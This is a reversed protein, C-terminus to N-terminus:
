TLAAYRSIAISAGVSSIIFPMLRTKSGFPMKFGPLINIQSNLVSCQVVGFTKKHKLTEKLEIIRSKTLYLEEELIVLGFGTGGEWYSAVIDARKNKYEEWIRQVGKIDESDFDSINIIEEILKNMQENLKTLKEDARIKIELNSTPHNPEVM